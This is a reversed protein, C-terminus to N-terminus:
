EKELPTDKVTNLVAVLIHIIDEFRVWQGSTDEYPAIGPASDGYCDTYDLEFEYRKM